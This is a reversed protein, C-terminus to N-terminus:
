KQRQILTEALEYLIKQNKKDATMKLILAKAQKTLRKIKKQSYTLAGTDIFIQKIMEHQKKTNKKRGYYTQLVIQQQKSAHKLAYTILLTSKNEEIDSTTSKGITKEDGFIGLIDDQMQYAIGLPEGFQKITDLFEDTAGGLMAGLSLPGVITYTATKMKQITLIQKETRKDSHASAIDLMQGLITDTIIQSFYNFAKNKRETPFDSDSILKNALIIGLDGLCIAQSIGYHKDPQMHMAPKGRRIPSQDMIDDHTLLAAHLIEFAAAPKFIADTPKSRVLDYGLKVLTGRLMKGGLFSNTLQMNLKKLDPFDMAIKKNWEQSYVTLEKEIEKSARQLYTKFDTQSTMAINNYFM